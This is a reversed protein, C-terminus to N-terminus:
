ARVAVAAAILAVAVPGVRTNSCLRVATVPIAALNIPQRAWGILGQFLMVPAIAGLALLLATSQCAGEPLGQRGEDVWVGVSGTAGASREATPTSLSVWIRHVSKQSASEGAGARFSERLTGRVIHVLAPVAVAVLAVAALVPTGSEGPISARGALLSDAFGVLAAAAAQGVVVLITDAIITGCRRAAERRTIRPSPRAGNALLAVRPVDAATRAAARNRDRSQWSSDSSRDGSKDKGNRKRKKTGRTTDRTKKTKKEQFATM